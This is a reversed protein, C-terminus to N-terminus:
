KRIAKKKFEAEYVEINFKEKLYEITVDGQKLDGITSPTKSTRVLLWLRDTVLGTVVAKSSLFSSIDQVSFFSYSEREEKLNSENKNFNPVKHSPHTHMNFLYEVSVKKPAKKYYVDTRRQVKGDVLLERRLYHNRTPHPVYNISVKHNSKVSKSDGRIASTVVLEGDAWFVSIARELGDATTQKYIKIIDRWFKEPFKISSPLNYYFPYVGAERWGVMKKYFAYFSISSDSEFLNKFLNSISLM